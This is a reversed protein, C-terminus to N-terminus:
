FVIAALSKSASRTEGTTGKKDKFATLLREKAQKIM